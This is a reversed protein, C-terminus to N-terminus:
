AAYAAATWPSSSRRDQLTLANGTPSKGATRQMETSGGEDPGYLNHTLATFM